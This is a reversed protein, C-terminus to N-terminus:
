TTREDRPLVASLTANCSLGVDLFVSGVESPSLVVYLLAVKVRAAVASM